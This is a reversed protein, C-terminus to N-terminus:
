ISQKMNKLNQKKLKKIAEVAKTKEKIINLEQKNSTTENLIPSLYSSMIVDDEKWSALTQELNDMLGQEACQQILNVINKINPMNDNNLPYVKKLTELSHTTSYIQNNDNLMNKRFIVLNDIMQKFDPKLGAQKEYEYNLIVSWCDAINEQMNGLIFLHPLTDNISLNEIESSKRYSIFDKIKQNEFISHRSIDSVNFAENSLLDDMFHGIEHFLIFRIGQEQGTINFMDKYIGKKQQISKLSMYINNEKNNAQQAQFYCGIDKVWLSQKKDDRFSVKKMLVINVQESSIPYQQNIFDIYNQINQIITNQENQKIKNSFYTKKTLNKLQTLNKITMIIIYVM